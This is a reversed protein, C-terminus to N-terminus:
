IAKAINEESFDIDILDWEKIVYIERESIKDRSKSRSFQSNYKVLIKCIERADYIYDEWVKLSGIKEIKIKRNGSITM